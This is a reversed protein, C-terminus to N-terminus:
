FHKMCLGLAALDREYHKGKLAHDVSGEAVVGAVLVEGLESGKYYKYIASMM